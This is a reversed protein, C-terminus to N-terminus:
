ALILLEKWTDIWKNNELLNINASNENHKFYIYDEKFVDNVLVEKINFLKSLDESYKSLESPKKNETRLFIAILNHNKGNIIDEIYILDETKILQLNPNEDKLLAQHSLKWWKQTSEECIWIDIIESLTKLFGAQRNNQSHFTKIFDGRDKSEMKYKGEYLAEINNDDDIFIGDIDWLCLNGPLCKRHNESFPNSIGWNRKRVM